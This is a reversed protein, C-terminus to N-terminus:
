LFSGNGVEMAWKTECKSPVLADSAGHPRPAARPCPVVLVCRCSKRSPRCAAHHPSTGGAFFGSIKTSKSNPLTVLVQSWLLGTHNAVNTSLQSVQLLKEGCRELLSQCQNILLLLGAKNGTFTIKPKVLTTELTKRIKKTM